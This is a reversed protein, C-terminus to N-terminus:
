GSAYLSGVLAGARIGPLVGVEMQNMVYGFGIRNEPDAFGLSGGAGPHGFASLSPGLLSRIKKGSPDLPDMM